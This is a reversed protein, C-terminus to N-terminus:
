LTLTTNQSLNSYAFFGVPLPYGVSQDSERHYYYNIKNLLTSRVTISPDDFTLVFKLMQNTPSRIYDTRGGRFMRQSAIDCSACVENHVRISFLHFPLAPTRETQKLM